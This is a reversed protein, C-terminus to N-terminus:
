VGHNKVNHYKMSHESIFVKDCGQCSIKCDDITFKAKKNEDIWQLEDKHVRDLHGMLSKRRSFDHYCLDCTFRIGSQMHVESVHRNYTKNNKFIKSCLNCIKNAPDVPNPKEDQAAPAKREINENAPGRSSTIGHAIRKHRAINKISIAKGCIQCSTSADLGLRLGKFIKKIHGRPNSQFDSETPGEPTLVHAIRKHRALNSNFMRKGCIQCSAKLVNKLKHKLRMHIRIAHKPVMLLCKPCEEREKKVEVNRNPASTDTENRIISKVQDWEDGMDHDDEDDTAEQTTDDVPEEALSESGVILPVETNEELVENEQGELENEFNDNQGRRSCEQEQTKQVFEENENVMDTLNEIVDDDLDMKSSIVNVVTMKEQETLYSLAFLLNMDYHVEHDQSIHNLFRTKDGKRLSVTGRCLVCIVFPPKKFQSLM